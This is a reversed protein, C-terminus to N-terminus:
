ERGAGGPPDVDLGCLKRARAEIHRIQFADVDEGLRADWAANLVDAISPRASGEPLPDDGALLDRIELVDGWGSYQSRPM